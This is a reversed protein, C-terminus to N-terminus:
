LKQLEISVCEHELNEQAYHTHKIFSSQYFSLHLSSVLLTIQAHM